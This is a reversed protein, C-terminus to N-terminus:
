RWEYVNLQKQDDAAVYLEVTGDGNMDAVNCAHEFGASNSEFQALSWEGSDSQDIFYLGTKMAAAVLEQRGDNDFDAAVLFRTQRDDITAVTSADFGGEANLTYQRIEVPTTITGNAVVAEFVAFFETTGDGDIDTALIEKAHTGAGSEVVVREYAGDVFRYMVVEGHQSHSASNRDSPTAFFEVVGDGDIDGIEIEHVFTDPKEDLETVTGDSEIVAVVGADHTAVVFEDEGDGDVDGIELDRLRQITGGWRQRWITESTWEGAESLSWRKLYGYADDQNPLAGSVTLVTDDLIIAKHFVVADEDVLEGRQWSGDVERWVGMTAPAPVVSGDEGTTFRAESTLIVSEGNLSGAEVYWNIHQDSWSALTTKHVRPGRESAPTQQTSSESAPAPSSADGGCGVIAVSLVFALKKM